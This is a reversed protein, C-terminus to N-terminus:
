RPMAGSAAMHRRRVSGMNGEKRWDPQQYNSAAFSEFGGAANLQPGGNIIDFSTNYLASKGAGRMRAPKAEAAADVRNAKTDYGGPLM